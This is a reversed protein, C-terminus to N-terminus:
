VTVIAACFPNVPVTARFAPPNGEPALALKLGVEMVTAPEEVKVTVVALEVGLPLEVSMLVPVLPLKDCEALTASVTLAAAGCGGELRAAVAAELEAILKVQVAEGVAPTV